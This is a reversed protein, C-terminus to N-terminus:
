YSNKVRESESDTISVHLVTSVKSDTLLIRHYSWEFSVEEATSSTIIIILCNNLTSTLIKSRFLDHKKSETIVSVDLIVKIRLKDIQGQNNM